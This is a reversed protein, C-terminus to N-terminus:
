RWNSIIQSEHCPHQPRPRRFGRDCFRRCANKPNSCWPRRPRKKVNRLINGDTCTGNFGVFGREGGDNYTCKFAVNGDRGSM